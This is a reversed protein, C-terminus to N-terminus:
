PSVQPTAGNTQMMQTVCAQVFALSADSYDFFVGLLAGSRWRRELRIMGINPVQLKLKAKVPLDSAASDSFNLCAGGLSLNELVCSHTQGDVDVSLAMKTEAQYRPWERREDSKSIPTRLM